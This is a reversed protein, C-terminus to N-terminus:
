GRRPDSQAALRTGRPTRPRRRRPLGRRDDARSRGIRLELAVQAFEDGLVDDITSREEGLKSITASLGLGSDLCVVMLDLVYPLARTVQGVCQRARRRLWLNALMHGRVWYAAAM